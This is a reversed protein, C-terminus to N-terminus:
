AGKEQRCRRGSMPPPPPTSASDGEQDSRRGHLHEGTNVSDDLGFGEPNGRGTSALIFAFPDGTVRREGGGSVPFPRVDDLALVGPGWGQDTLVQAIHSLSTMTGDGLVSSQGLASRIDDAHLYTDFWLAEIGFGFSGATGGPAPADWSQDDFSAALVQATELSSELEEALEMPAKGRREEVQRSTVQPSGLGDLHLAVVDTLQGVVHSAVSATSWGACRSPVQWQDTSLGSVLRSFAEYESLMGPLVVERSLTM